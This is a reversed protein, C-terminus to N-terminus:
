PLLERGLKLLRQGSVRIKLWGTVFGFQQIHSRYDELEVRLEHFETCEGLMQIMEMDAEFFSPAFRNLLRGVVLAHPYFCQWHVVQAFEDPTCKFRECFAAEFTTAM